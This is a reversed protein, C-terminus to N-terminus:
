SQSRRGIEKLRTMDGHGAIQRWLSDLASINLAILNDLDQVLGDRLAGNPESAIADLRRGVDAWQEASVGDVALETHAGPHDHVYRLVSLQIGRYTTSGFSTDVIDDPEVESGLDM